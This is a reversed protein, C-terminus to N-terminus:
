AGANENLTGNDNLINIIDIEEQHRQWVEYDNPDHGPTIKVCGSGLEPKAWEDLILPIERNQLPLRVKRGERAMRALAELTPIHSERRAQYRALEAELAKKEKAPAAALREKLREIQRELEAAPEPHCAVATDGLMTEPRTTAVTVHDPEGPRPDIVPYRLHWFHGNVTEHYVEDDSVSTHLQCDWNVLRYGRFILADRFLRYFTERVARA